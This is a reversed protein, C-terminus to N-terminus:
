CNGLLVSWPHRWTQCIHGDCNRRWRQQITAGQPPISSHFPWAPNLSIVLSVCRTALGTLWSEVPARQRQCKWTIASEFLLATSVDFFWAILWCRWPWMRCDSLLNLVLIGCTPPHRMLNFLPYQLWPLQVDHLCDWASLAISRLSVTLILSSNWSQLWPSCEAGAADSVHQLFAWTPLRNLLMEWLLCGAPNSSLFPVLGYVMFSLM